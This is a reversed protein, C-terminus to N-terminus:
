ISTVLSSFLFYIDSMTPRDSPDLNWSREMLAWVSDNLQRASAIDRPRSPRRNKVVIEIMVAPDRVIEDFPRKRSFVQM